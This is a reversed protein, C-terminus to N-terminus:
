SNPMWTGISARHGPTIRQRYLWALAGADNALALSATMWCITESDAFHVATQPTCIAYSPSVVVGGLVSAAPAGSPTLTMPHCFGSMPIEPAVYAHYSVLPLEPRVSTSASM